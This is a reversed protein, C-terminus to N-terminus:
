DRPSPSTYLLCPDGLIDHVISAVTARAEKYNKGTIAEIIVDVEDNCFPGLITTLVVRFAKEHKDTIADEDDENLEDIPAEEEIFKKAPKNVIHRIKKNNFCCHECFVLAGDEDKKNDKLGTSHFKKHDSLQKKLTQAASADKFTVIGGAGSCSCINELKGPFEKLEAGCDCASKAPDKSIVELKEIQSEPGQGVLRALTDWLRALDTNTEIPQQNLVGDTFLRVGGLYVVKANEM